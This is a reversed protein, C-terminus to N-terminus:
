DGWYPFFLSRQYGAMAETIFTYTKPAKPPQKVWRLSLIRLANAEIEQRRTGNKIRWEGNVVIKNENDKEIYIIVKAYRIICVLENRFNM